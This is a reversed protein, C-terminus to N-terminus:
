KEHIRIKKGNFKVDEGKVLVAVKKESKLDYKVLDQFDGAKELDTYHLGDKMANYGGTSASMFTYKLWLDELTIKTQASLGLCLIILLGSIINRM